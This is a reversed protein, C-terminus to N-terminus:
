RWMRGRRKVPELLAPDFPPLAHGDPQPPETRWGMALLVAEAEYYDQSLLSMLAQFPGRLEVEVRAVAAIRARADGRAFAEEGRAASAIAKLVNEHLAGDQAAALRDALKRAVGAATASPLPPAADDGPFLTDVVASLFEPTM